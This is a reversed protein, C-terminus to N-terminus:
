AALQEPVKYAELAHHFARVKYGFERAMAMETLFEDARYCHIQVLLKGRLMFLFDLGGRELNETPPWHSFFVGALGPVLGILLAARLTARRARSRSLPRRTRDM